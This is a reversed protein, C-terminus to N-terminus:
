LRPAARMTIQRTSVVSMSGFHCEILEDLLLDKESVCYLSKGHEIQIENLVRFENVFPLIINFIALEVGTVDATVESVSADGKM